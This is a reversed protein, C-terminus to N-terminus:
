SPHWSSHRPRVPKRMHRLKKYPLHTRANNNCFQVRSVLPTTNLSQQTPSRHHLWDFRASPQQKPSSEALAIELAANRSVPQPIHRSDAHIEDRCYGRSEPIVSAVPHQPGGFRPSLESAPHRRQQPSQNVKRCRHFYGCITTACCARAPPTLSCVLGM